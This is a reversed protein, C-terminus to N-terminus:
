KAQFRELPKRDRLPYHRNNETSPALPTDKPRPMAISLQHEEEEPQAIEAPIEPPAEPPIVSPVLPTTEPIVEPLSRPLTVQPTINNADTPANRDKGKGDYIDKDGIGDCDEYENYDSLVAQDDQTRVQESVKYCESTKVRYSTNRLQSGIFKKVNCWKGEVSTVLYHDRARLKDKDCYLYVIDGQSIKAEVAKSQGPAKSRESYSHNTLKQSHQESILKHDLIPLQANTFQDRQSWM